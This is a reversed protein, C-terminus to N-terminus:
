FDEFGRQTLTEIESKSVSWVPNVQLQIKQKKGELFLMSSTAAATTFQAAPLKEVCRLGVSVICLFYILGCAQWGALLFLGLHSVRSAKLGDASDERNRVINKM